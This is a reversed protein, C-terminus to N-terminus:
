GIYSKVSSDTLVRFSRIYMVVWIASGAVKLVGGLSFNGLLNTGSRFTWYGMVASGIVSVALLLSRTLSSRGLLKRGLVFTVFLSFATGFGTFVMRFISFGSMVVTALGSLIAFGYWSNTLNEIRERATM